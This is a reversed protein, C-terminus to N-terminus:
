SNRPQHSSEVLAESIINKHPDTRTENVLDAFNILALERLMAMQVRDWKTRVKCGNQFPCNDELKFNMCESLLIPGEFVEVVDRLSINAAPRALQLGGERGTFTKILGTNALKAVIRPLFSPPILMEEQIIASSVRVDAERAALALIVRVAYDTQRNIRLM